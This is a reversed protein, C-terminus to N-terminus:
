SRSDRDVATSSWRPSGGIPLISTKKRTARRVRKLLEEKDEPFLAFYARLKTSKSIEAITAEEAKKSLGAVEPNAAFGSEQRIVAIVSCFNSRSPEIKLADFAGLIDNAWGVADRVHPATKMIVQAATVRDLVSAPAAHLSSEAGISLAMGLCAVRALSFMQPFPPTTMQLPAASRIRAHDLRARSRTRLKGPACRPEGLQVFQRRQLPVTHGRLDKVVLRANLPHDHPHSPVRM